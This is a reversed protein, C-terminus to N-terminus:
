TLVMCSDEKRWQCMKVMMLGELGTMPLHLLEQLLDLFAVILLQLAEVQHAVQHHQPHEVEAVLLRLPPCLRDWHHVWHHDLLPPEL